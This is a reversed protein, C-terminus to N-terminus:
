RCPRRCVPLSRVARPPGSTLVEATYIPKIREMKDASITALKIAWKYDPTRPRNLRPTPTPVRPRPPKPATYFRPKYEKVTYEQVENYTRIKDYVHQNDYRHTKLPQHAKDYHHVKDYTKVQYSHFAPQHIRYDPGTGYIPGGPFQSPDPMASDSSHFLCKSVDQM